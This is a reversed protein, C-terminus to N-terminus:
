ITPRDARSCRGSAPARVAAWQPPRVPHCRRRPTGREAFGSCPARELLVRLLHAASMEAIQEPVVGCAALTQRHLGLAEIEVVRLVTDRLLRDPEQELQGLLPAD